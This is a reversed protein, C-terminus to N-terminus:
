KRYVQELIKNISPEYAAVSAAPEKLGQSVDLVMVSMPDVGSTGTIETILGPDSIFTTTIYNKYMDENDKDDLIGLTKVTALQEDVDTLRKAIAGFAIAARLQPWGGAPALLEPKPRLLEGM